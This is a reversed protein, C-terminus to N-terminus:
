TTRVNGKTMKRQRLVSLGSKDIGQLAALDATFPTSINYFGDGSIVLVEFGVASCESVCVPLPLRPETGTAGQLELHAPLFASNQACTVLFLSEALDMTLFAASSLGESCPLVSFLVIPSQALSGEQVWHGRRSAPLIETVCLALHFPLVHPLPPLAGGQRSIQTNPNFNEWEYRETGAGEEM